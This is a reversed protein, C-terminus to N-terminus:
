NEIDIDFAKKAQYDSYGLIKLIATGIQGDSINAPISGTNIITSAPAGTSTDIIDGIANLWTDLKINELGEKSETILKHIDFPIKDLGKATLYFPKDLIANLIAQYINGIGILAQSNLDFISNVVEKTFDGWDGAAFGLIWVYPNAVMRYLFNNFVTYILITKIMESNSIDGNAKSIIADATKRFYQNTTNQFAYYLRFIPNKSKQYDALSSTTAAQQARNVELVFEKFAEEKSMKKHQMLYDVYPKGGFIIAGIDGLKVNLSFFDIFKKSKHFDSAKVIRALAENQAGEGFRQQLYENKMMFKITAEPNSLAKLFGGFWLASPMKDSFNIVSVLQTAMIKPKLSITSVIVNNVLKNIMSDVAGLIEAKKTYSCDSIQKIFGNYAEEGYLDSIFQKVTRDKFVRNLKGLKEELIILNNAKEIHTFLTQVPNSLKIPVFVSSTRTKFFKPATSQETYQNFLDLEQVVDAAVPFYNKAKPMDIGYKKIYVQNVPKYYKEATRQLLDGIKIDDSNLLSMIRDYGGESFMNILRQKIIPNKSYIYAEILQMKNLEIDRVRKLSYDKFIYKENLKKFIEDDIFFPKVNLIKSMEKLVTQKELYSKAQVQTEEFLLSYEDVFKKDLFLNIFSELNAFKTYFKTLDKAPTKKELRDLVKDIAANNNLRSEFDASNKSLRGQMKAFIIDQYLSSLFDSSIYVNGHAKYTVFKKYLKDEFSLSEKQEESMAEFEELLTTYEAEADERNLKNVERLKNFLKNTSYDYKGYTKGNKRINKTAMLEKQINESINKRATVDQLTEAFDMIENINNKLEETSTIESVVGLIKNREFATLFNLQKLVAQSRFLM